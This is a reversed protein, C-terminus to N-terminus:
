LVLNESAWEVEHMLKDVEEENVCPHLSVRLATAAIGDSYGMNKLVRSVGGKTCASAASVYIEKSSLHNIMVESPLIGTSFNFIYDVSNEPTNIHFRKNKCFDVLKEKMRKLHNKNQEFLKATIKLAQILTLVAVVNETGSRLGFEQGGGVILPKLIGPNKAHLCGAGKMSGLKHGSISAFDINELNVPIKGFGQVIDAFVLINESYNKIEYALKELQNIAGTENNVLMISCIRINEDIFPRIDEFKMGERGHKIYVTEAGLESASEASEIVSKHEINSLLIRNATKYKLGKFVLNAAETASSTFIISEPLANLYFAIQRRANGLAERTKVGSSYLASPNFNYKDLLDPIKESIENYVPWYKMYEGGFYKAFKREKKAM